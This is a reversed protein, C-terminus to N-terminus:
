DKPVYIGNKRQFSAIYADFEVDTFRKLNRDEYFKRSNYINSFSLIERAQSRFNLYRAHLNETKRRVANEHDFITPDSCAIGDMYPTSKRLEEYIREEIRSIEQPQNLILFVWEHPLEEQEGRHTFKNFRVQRLSNPNDAM